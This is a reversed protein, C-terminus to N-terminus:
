ITTVLGHCTNINKFFGIIKKNHDMNNLVIQKLIITYFTIAYDLSSDHHKNKSFCIFIDSNPFKLQGPFNNFLINNKISKSAFYLRICAPIYNQIAELTDRHNNTTGLTEWVNIVDNTTTTVLKHLFYSWVIQSSKKSTQALIILEPNTLKKLIMHILENPFAYQEM